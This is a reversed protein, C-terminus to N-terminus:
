VRGCDAHKEYFFVSDRIIGETELARMSNTEKGVHQLNGQSRPYADCSVPPDFTGTRCRTSFNNCTNVGSRSWGVGCSGAWVGSLCMKVRM